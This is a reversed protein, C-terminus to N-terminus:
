NFLNCFCAFIFCAFLTSFNPSSRLLLPNRHIAVDFEITPPHCCAPFARVPLFIQNVSKQMIKLYLLTLILTFIKNRTGSVKQIPQVFIKSIISLNDCHSCFIREFKNSKPMALKLCIYTCPNKKLCPILLFPGFNVHFTQSEFTQRM